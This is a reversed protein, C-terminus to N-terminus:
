FELRIPWKQNEFYVDVPASSLDLVYDADDTQADQATQIGPILLLLDAAVKGEVTLSTPHSGFYCVVIERDKVPTGYKQKVIDSLQYRLYESATRADQLRQLAEREVILYNWIKEVGLDRIPLANDSIAFVMRSALHLAAQRDSFDLKETVAIFSNLLASLDHPLEGTSSYGNVVEDPVDANELNRFLVDRIREGADSLQEPPLTALAECVVGIEAQVREQVTSTSFRAFEVM